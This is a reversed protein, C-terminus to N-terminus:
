LRGISSVIAGAMRMRWGRDMLWLEETPNSIFATEILVAPMATNVLVYFKSEKDPDGDSSDVRGALAPFAERVTNFIKTAIPDAATYGPSTWVEFGHASPLAAANAHVSIFLDAGRSNAISCRSQLSLTEDNERTMFVEHALVERPDVLGFRIFRSIDLVAEKETFGTPGVAGSDSGGHGADICIKM